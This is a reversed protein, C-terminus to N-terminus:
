QIQSTIQRAAKDFIQHAFDEVETEPAHVDVMIFYEDQVTEGHLCLLDNNAQAIYYTGTRDIPLYAGENISDWYIYMGNPRGKGERFGEWIWFTLTDFQRPLTNWKMITTYYNLVERAAEPSEMKYVSYEVEFDTVHSDSLYLVNAQDVVMSSFQGGTDIELPDILLKVSRMGSTTNIFFGAFEPKLAPEPVSGTYLSPQIVTSDGPFSGPPPQIPGAARHSGGGSLLYAIVLLLSAIVILYPVNNRAGKHATNPQEGQHSVGGTKDTKKKRTM